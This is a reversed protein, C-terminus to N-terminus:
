TSIIEPPVTVFVTILYEGLNEAKFLMSVVTDDINMEGTEILNNDKYVNYKAQTIVLPTDPLLPKIDWEIVRAEGKYYYRRTCNRAM